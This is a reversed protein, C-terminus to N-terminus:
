CLEHLRAYKTWLIATRINRSKHSVGGIFNPMKEMARRYFLLQEIYALPVNEQHGDLAVSLITTKFDVIWIDDDKFAIKDPRGERNEFLFSVESLAMTDFLFEFEKQRLVNLAECKAAKKQDDSLAFGQLLHDVTGQYLLDKDDYSHNQGHLYQPLKCLLLHVCEGYIAPKLFNNSGPLSTFNESPPPPLQQFFWVPIAERAGGLEACNKAPEQQAGTVAPEFAASKVAVAACKPVKGSHHGSYMLHSGYRVDSKFVAEDVHRKITNYWCNESLKHTRQEGLIYLFDEARTLAVYLLRHSEGLDLAAYQCQLHEIQQPRLHSSFDWFVLGTDSMIIEDQPIRFFHCDALLVFPSQLGKSSHVTMLRVANNQGFSERKIEHRFSRFWEIFGELSAGGNNDTYLMVVDLFVSLVDLCEEGLRNIFKERTGDAIIKMFFAMPSKDFVERLYSQLQQLNYKSYLEEDQLLYDWLGLHKVTRDICVRMLDEESMGVIPSKLVRACSLDDAPLLAFTALQILDEVILEDELLFRDLGCVPISLANLASAINKMAIPDRRQFLIMFDSARAPRQCSDVWVGGIIADHITHAIHAALKGSASQRSQQNKITSWPWDDADNGEADDDTFLDVITVVGGDASRNSVHKVDPLLHGCISDVFSLINGGSRHSINLVADHFRQGSTTSKNRFYKHMRDFVRVDAGQFSYISQKEDGVVFITKTPHLTAFFEDAIAQVIEWQEPSTDQAEDLLIHDIDCNIKYMVWEINKLLIAVISIIDDFDVCHNAWKLENFKAIIRSIVTFFEINAKASTYTKKQEWFELVWQAAESMQQFFNPYKKAIQASYLRNKLKYEQTFFALLFETSNAAVASQLLRAKKLDEANGQSLIESIQLFKQKQNEWSMQQLLYLDVEVDFDSSTTWRQRGDGNAFLDNQGMPICFFSLYTSRIDGVNALWLRRNKIIEFLDVTFNSIYEMSHRNEQQRMIANIAERLLASIQYDDCTTFGPLLGTELPFKELLGLCFGHITKIQVWEAANTSQAFLSQALALQSSICPLISDSIASNKHFRVIGFSLLEQELDEPMMGQWRLLQQSLRDLMEAAAARTYTLCLIKAPYVGALLLALIRDILSKTKGTGASASIWISAGIDKIENLMPVMM